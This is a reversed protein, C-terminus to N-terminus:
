RRTAHIIVKIIDRLIFGNDVSFIMNRVHSETGIEVSRGNTDISSVKSIPINRNQMDGNFFLRLNTITLVGHAITSIEEQTHSISQGQGVRLGYGLGASMGDHKATRVLRPELLTARGEWYAGENQKLMLTTQCRHLTGGHVGERWTQYNSVISPLEAETPRLLADMTAKEKQAQASKQAAVFLMGMVGMLNLGSKAM